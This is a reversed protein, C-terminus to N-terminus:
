PPPFKPTVSASLRVLRALPLAAAIKAEQPRCVSLLPRAAAHAAPLRSTNPETDVLSPIPDFRTSGTGQKKLSPEM